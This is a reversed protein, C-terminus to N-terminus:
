GDAPHLFCEEPCCYQLTQSFIKELYAGGRPRVSTGSHLFPASSQRLRLRQVTEHRLLLGHMFYHRRPASPAVAMSQLVILIFNSIYLLNIYHYMPLSGSSACASSFVLFVDLVFNFITLTSSTTMRTTMTTM